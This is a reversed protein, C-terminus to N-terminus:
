MLTFGGGKFVTPIQQIFGETYPVSKYKRAVGRLLKGGHINTDDKHKEYYADNFVRGGRRITPTGIVSIKPKDIKYANDYLGM